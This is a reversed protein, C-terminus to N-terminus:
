VIKSTDIKMQSLFFYRKQRLNASSPVLLVILREALPLAVKADGNTNVRGGNTKALSRKQFNKVALM